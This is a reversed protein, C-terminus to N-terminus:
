IHGGMPSAALVSDFAGKLGTKLQGEEMHALMTTVASTQADAMKQLFRWYMRDFIGQYRWMEKQAKLMGPGVKMMLLMPDVKEKNAIPWVLLSWINALNPMGLKTFLNKVLPLARNHDITGGGERVLAVLGKGFETIAEPARLEEGLKTSLEALRAMDPKTEKTSRVHGAYLLLDGVSSPMGIQRSAEALLSFGEEPGPPSKHQLPAGARMILKSMAPPGGFQTNLDALIKNFQTLVAAIEAPKRPADSIARAATSYFEAVAPPLGLQKSSLSITRMIRSGSQIPNFVVKQRKATASDHVFDILAPPAGLKKLLPVHLDLFYAEDLTVNMLGVGASYAFLDALPPGVTKNALDIAFESGAAAANYAMSGLTSKLKTANGRYAEDSAATLESLMPQWQPSVLKKDVLHRVAGCARSFNTLRKFLEDDSISTVDKSAFVDHSLALIEDLLGFELPTKPQEYLDMIFQTVKNVLDFRFMLLADPVKLDAAARRAMGDVADHLNHKSKAVQARRAEAGAEGIQEVDGSLQIRTIRQHLSVDAYSRLCVGCRLGACAALLSLAVRSM